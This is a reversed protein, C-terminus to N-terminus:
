YLNQSRLIKLAIESAAAGSANMTAGFSSTTEPKHIHVAFCCTHGSGTVYGIFWGNINEGNVNGTGTKGYLIGSDSDSIRMGRLVAQVNEEQFHFENTYLKKLLDVQELPSIKLSSELWYSDLGGSLNQNGYGIKKYFAELNDLGAEQDLFQFYWNVSNQLASTLTQNRNWQTFPYNQGDWIRESDEPTILHNELAMLGSYIKYTSDPSFREAALEKNYIQWRDTELDYLVFSGDYEQFFSAYNEYSVTEPDPFSSIEESAHVPFFSASELILLATVAFIIFNKVKSKWTERRFSAINLIRKRILSSSGGMESAFSLPSFTMKEAYNLLTNGYDYHSNTDLLNMVSFDCAVECDNHMVQFSYWVLPNLWYPVCFFCIVYKILSDKQRYHQLEHLLIFRMESDKYDSLLSLPLYIRPHFFGVLAPSKLYASSYVPIKRSIHQEIKCEEILKLLTGKELPLSSKHIQYINAASKLILITVVIMGAIWIGALFSSINPSTKQSVSISFDQITEAGVSPVDSLQSVHGSKAFDSLNGTWFRSIFQLLGMRRFPIFPILLAFFLPFWIRYQFKGSLHRRLVAKITLLLLIIGSIYLNCILFYLFFSSMM